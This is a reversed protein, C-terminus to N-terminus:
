PTATTDSVTQTRVVSLQLEVKQDVAQSLQRELEALAPLQQDDPVMVKAHVVVVEGDQKAEIVEVAYKPLELQAQLVLRSEREWRKMQVDQRFAVILFFGLALMISGMGVWGALSVKLQKGSHPHKGFLVLVVAAAGVIAVTNTLFLAAAGWLVPWYGESLAIGMVALPLELAVAAAVGSLHTSVDHRLYGYMGITGAVLAMLLDLISAQSRAEVLEPVGVVPMILAIITAVVVVLSISLSLHTMAHLGPKGKGEALSVSLASLPIMLPSIILAGIEGAFSGSLIGFTALAASLGLVVYYSQGTTSDRDLLKTENRLSGYRLWGAVSSWSQSTVKM